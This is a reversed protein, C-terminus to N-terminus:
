AGVPPAYCGFPGAGVEDAAGGDLPHRFVRPTDDPDGPRAGSLLLWRGTPDVLPHTPAFQEFFRLWFRLDRSPRVRAVLREDRGDPAVLSFSVAGQRPEPRAVLTGRGGPVSLFAVMPLDSVRTSRGTRPDLARLDAYTRGDGDSSVARLVRGDGAPVMALLGDVVELERSPLGTPATVLVGGRGGHVAAWVVGAPTPVPVCFAAPAGPFATVETATAVVVDNRGGGRGVHAVVRDDDVWAFFLPSGTLWTTVAPEGVTVVRLELADQVQTVVALRRGGPSWALYIPVGGLPESEAEAGSPEGVVVRAPTGGRAVRLAAWRGGGPPACPWSHVDAADHRGWSAWLPAKARVAGAVVQRDVDLWWLESM